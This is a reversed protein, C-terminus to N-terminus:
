FVLMSKPISDRIPFPVPESFSAGGHKYCYKAWGKKASTGTNQSRAARSLFSLFPLSSALSPDLSHTALHDRTSATSFLKM